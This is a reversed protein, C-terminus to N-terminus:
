SKPMETDSLITCKKMGANRSIENSNNSNNNNNRYNSTWEGLLVVLNQWKKHSKKHMKKMHANRSIKVTM